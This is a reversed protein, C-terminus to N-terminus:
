TGFAFKRGALAQKGKRSAGSSRGKSKRAGALNLLFQNTFIYNASTACLPSKTTIYRVKIALWDKEYKKLKRLKFSSTTLKMLQRAAVENRYRKPLQVRFYKLIGEFNLALLDKKAMTLLGLAVKLLLYFVM